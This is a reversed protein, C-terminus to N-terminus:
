PKVPSANVWKDAAEPSLALSDRLQRLAAVRDVMMAPPQQNPFFVIVETISGARFEPATIELRGDVQVKVIQRVAAVM